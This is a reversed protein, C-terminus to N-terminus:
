EILKGYDDFRRLTVSANVKVTQEGNISGDRWFGYSVHELRACNLFDAKKINSKFIVILLLNPTLSANYSKLKYMYALNVYKAAKLNGYEFQEITPSDPHNTFTLEKGDKTKLGKTCDSTSGM